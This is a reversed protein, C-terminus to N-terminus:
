LGLGLQVRKYLRAWAMYRANRERKAHLHRACYDSGDAAEAPCPYQCLGLAQRSKWTM